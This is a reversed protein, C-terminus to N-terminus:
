GKCPTTSTERETDGNVYKYVVTNTWKHSAPCKAPTTTLKGPKLTVTLVKLVAEGKTCDTPDLCKQPVQAIMEAGKVKLEIVQNQGTLYTLLGGSTTFIQAKLSTLSADIVPNGTIVTATGSGVLSGTPCASSGISLLKAKSCKPYAALNMRTGPAMVITTTKVRDALQGAPPPTYAFRNTVFKTGTAKGPTTTTFKLSFKHEHRVAAYAPVAALVGILALLSIRRM